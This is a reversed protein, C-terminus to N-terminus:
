LVERGAGIAIRVWTGGKSVEERGAGIAIRLSFRTNKLSFCM